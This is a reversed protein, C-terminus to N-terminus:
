GNQKIHGQNLRTTVEMIEAMDDAGVSKAYAELAYTDKDWCHSKWGRKGEVVRTHMSDVRGDSTWAQHSRMFEGGAKEILNRMANAWTVKYAGYGNEILKVTEADRASLLHIRTDPSMKAWLVEAAKSATEYSGGIIIMKHKQPEKPDPYKEPPQYYNGMGIFEVSVAIDKGTKEILRDTTGPQLASKLLIIDTDLWDVVEEVISMDLEGGETPDTPVAVIAIGCENVAMRGAELTKEGAYLEKPEDYVLAEPFMGEYAQGLYGNGVLAIGQRM